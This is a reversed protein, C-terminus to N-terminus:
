GQLLMKQQIAYLIRNQIRMCMINPDLTQGKGILVEENGVTMESEKIFFVEWNFFPFKFYFGAEFPPFSFLYAEGEKRWNAGPQIKELLELLNNKKFSFAEPPKENVVLKYSNINAVRLQSQLSSM